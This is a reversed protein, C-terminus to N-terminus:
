GLLECSPGDTGNACNFKFKQWILCYFLRVEKHWWCQVTILLLVMIWMIPVNTRKCHLVKRLPVILFCADLFKQYAMVPGTHFPHHVNKTDVQNWCRGCFQNTEQVYSPPTLIPNSSSTSIGTSTSCLPTSVTNLRSEAAYPIRSSKAYLALHALHKKGSHHSKVPTEGMNSLVIKNRPVPCVWCVATMKTDGRMLWLSYENMRLWVEYFYTSM